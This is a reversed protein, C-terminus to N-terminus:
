KSKEIVNGVANVPQDITIKDGLTAALNPLDYHLLAAHVIQAAQNRNMRDHIVTSWSKLMRSISVTSFLDAELAAAHLAPIGVNGIAVLDVAHKRARQAAYRASVLVDEARMGVYSRGLMYAIYVDKYESSYHGSNDQQTQGTGRLDVALVADGARVRREIAGGPAADAAKGQEHLYLAVRDPKAKEPLFWLAPLFIGEEPELLLKEITYGPRAVTGLSEVRPQPLESLRRVGALRRVQDLLVSRDGSSWAAARRKALEGEYDENIDYVSRAGPLSLAQGNTTCQYERDSLLAIKPEVIVRDKGLLWRSM